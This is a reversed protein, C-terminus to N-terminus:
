IKTQMSAECKAIETEQKREIFAIKDLFLNFDDALFPNCICLQVWSKNLPTPWDPNTKNREWLGDNSLPGMIFSTNRLLTTMQRMQVRKERRNYRIIEKWKEMDDEKEASLIIGDKTAALFTKPIKYRLVASFGGTFRKDVWRLAPRLGNSLYFGNGDSFDKRAAGKQIDIGFESINSASSSDTGHFWYEFESNPVKTKSKDGFSNLFSHLNKKLKGNRKFNCCSIERPSDDNAFALTTYVTKNEKSCDPLAPQEDTLLLDYKFLDEIFLHAFELVSFHNLLFPFANIKDSLYKARQETFGLKILITETPM